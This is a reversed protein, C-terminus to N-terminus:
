QNPCEYERVVVESGKNVTYTCIKKEEVVVEEKEEEVPLGFLTTQDVDDVVSSTEDGMGVLSLSLRGSSAAQALRAVKQPTVMVTVTRAVGAAVDDATTTQNIAVIEVNSELLKTVARGSITGTWFVDVNNGPRLLGSVGTTIDVQITFARMGPDLLSMLSASQGPTSLKSALLPENIELSRVVYRRGRAEEPFMEEASKFIGEPLHPVPWKVAQVDEETIFDGFKVAKKVVFVDATPVAQAQNAKAEALAAEYKGFREQAIYVAFGALGLGLLLVLGFLARM